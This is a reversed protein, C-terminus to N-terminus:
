MGLSWRSSRRQFTSWSPLPTFLTGELRHNEEDWDLHWDSWSDSGGAQKLAAYLVAKRWAQKDASDAIEVSETALRQVM